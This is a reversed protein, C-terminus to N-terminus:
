THRHCFIAVLFRRHEITARLREEFRRAEAVEASVTAGPTPQVTRYSSRSVASVSQVDGVRLRYADDEASWRGSWGAEELLGDLEPRRPLAGVGPYRSSVCDHVEEVGILRVGELGAQQRALPHRVGAGVLTGLSLRIARAPDLPVPYLEGRASLGVTSIAAASLRALRAAPLAPLQEPRQVSLLAAEVADRGPLPDQTALAAGAEVVRAAYHAHDETHALWTYGDRRRLQWRPAGESTSGEAETAVRAVAAAVHLAETRELESGREVLLAEAAESPTMVGFNRELVRALDDRLSQYSPDKSWIERLRSLEISVTGPNLGLLEAARSQNPFALATPTASGWGLVADIIQKRRGPQRGSGKRVRALLRDLDRVMPEIEVGEGGEPRGETPVAPAGAAAGGSAPPGAAKPPAVAEPLDEGIEVEPFLARLARMADQMERRTKEGVGRQRLIKNPPIALLAEVTFLDL